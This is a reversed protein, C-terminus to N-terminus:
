FTVAEEVLEIGFSERVANKIKRALTKVDAATASGMNVLYNPHQTSSMADGVRAGKMGSKDILWGAPVRGERATVGKEKEFQERITQPAIPNMFYSGAARVNQIHRKEREQITEESIRFFDVSNGKRLTLHTSLVIWDTHKKFYSMRYSFDCELNSFERVELTYANIARVKVVFDKIESGFAGANGRIAGGITGPIGSLKEWGGFGLTNTAQIMELLNCGSEAELTSSIVSWKTNAIKIVLAELGEDPILVNSGGAHIIYPVGKSRAWLLAERIDGETKAETFYRAAGGIEFTTRKALEVNEQITIMSSLDGRWPVTGVSEPQPCTHIM